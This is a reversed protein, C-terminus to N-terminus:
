KISLIEDRSFWAQIEREAESVSDSAHILNRAAGNPFKNTDEHIGFDGRITGPAAQSPLTNGILKRVVAVAGHGEAILVVLPGSLYYERCGQIVKEGIKFPDATGWAKLPDLKMEKWCREEARVGMARVDEYSSPFHNDLEAESARIQKITLIKLGARNLRALIADVHKREVADPKLIVLTRELPAYGDFHAM